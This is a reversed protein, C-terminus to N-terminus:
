SLFIESLNTNFFRFCDYFLSPVVFNRFSFVSFKCHVNLIQQQTSKGVANEAECTYTAYDSSDISSFALKSDKVVKEGDQMIASFPTTITYRPDGISVGDKLWVIAAEPDSEVKCVMEVGTDGLSANYMGSIIGPAIFIPADILLGSYANSLKL